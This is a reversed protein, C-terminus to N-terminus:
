HNDVVAEVMSHFDLLHFSNVVLVEDRILRDTPIASNNVVLHFNGVTPLVSECDWHLIYTNQHVSKDLLVNFYPQLLPAWLM